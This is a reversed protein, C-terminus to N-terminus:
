IEKQAALALAQYKHEDFFGCVAAHANNNKSPSHAVGLKINRADSALISFIYHKDTSMVSTTKHAVDVSVYSEDGSDLKRLHFAESIIVGEEDIQMKSVRRYLKDDDEIEYKARKLSM